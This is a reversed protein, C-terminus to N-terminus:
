HNNIQQNLTINLDGTTTEGGHTENNGTIVIINWDTITLLAKIDNLLTGIKSPNSDCTLDDLIDDAINAM